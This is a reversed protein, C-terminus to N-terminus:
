RAGLARCRRSRGCLAVPLMFLVANDGPIAPLFLEGLAADARNMQRYVTPRSVGNHAALASIPEAGGHAQLVITKREEGTLKDSASRALQTVFFPQLSFHPKWQRRACGADGLTYRLESGRGFTSPKNLARMGPQMVEPAETNTALASSVNM